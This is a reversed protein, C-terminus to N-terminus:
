AEGVEMVRQPREALLVRFSSPALLLILRLISLLVISIHLVLLLSHFIFVIVLINAGSFVM